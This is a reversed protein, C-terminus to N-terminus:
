AEGQQRREFEAQVSEATILEAAPQEPINVVVQLSGVKDTLEKMAKVLFTRLAKQEDAIKNTADILDSILALIGKQEEAM